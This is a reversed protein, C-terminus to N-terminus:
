CVSWLHLKAAEDDRTIPWGQETQCLFGDFFESNCIESRDGSLRYRSWTDRLKVQAYGGTHGLCSDEGSLDFIAMGPVNPKPPYTGVLYGAGFALASALLTLLAIRTREM